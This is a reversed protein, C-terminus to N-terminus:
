GGGGGGDADGSGVVLPGDRSLWEPLLAGLWAMMTFWKDDGDVM